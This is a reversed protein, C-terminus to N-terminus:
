NLSGTWVVGANLISLMNPDRAVLPLETVRTNEVVEGLDARMNLLSDGDVTVTQTTSGVNLTFNVAATQGVELIIGTRAEKEFGNALASVTYRGPKLYPITYDGTATSVVTIDVGTDMNHAIVTAKPLMAGTSDSIRGTFEQAALFSAPFLLALLMLVCAKKLRGELITM